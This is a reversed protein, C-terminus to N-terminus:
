KLRAIELRPPEAVGEPKLPRALQVRDRGAQKATYLAEDAAKLVMAITQGHAPMDAVGASITVRPLVTDTGQHLARVRERIEEMRRCANEADCDPMLLVIEEGGYRCAVDGRRLDGQILVALARLVADGTAHGHRDNVQKFHDVDIMVVAVPSGRRDAQGAFRESVEELFRRNYLGTLSDRLAQNRLKERLTLNALAMSVGDALAVALDRQPEPAGPLGSVAAGFQMVGYVEGRATMPIELGALGPAVHECPIDAGPGHRHPRGRKLAWCNEPSFHDASALKTGEPWVATCDLRDRSNNFVYLAGPVGPLVEQATHLVVRRIDQETQCAQLMDSMRLLSRIEAGRVDMERRIAQEARGHRAIQWWAIALAGLCLGAGLMVLVLIRAQVQQMGRAAQEVQAARLRVFRELALRVTEGQAQLIGRRGEEIVTDREGAQLRELIDRRAAVIRTLPGLIPPSGTEAQSSDVLSAIRRFEGSELVEAARGFRLQDQVLGFLAYARLASESDLLAVTLQQAQAGETRLDEMERELSLSQRNGMSAAVAGALVAFAASLLLWGAFRTPSPRFRTVM